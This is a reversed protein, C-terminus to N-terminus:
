KYKVCNLMLIIFWKKWSWFKIKYSDYTKLIKVDHQFSGQM